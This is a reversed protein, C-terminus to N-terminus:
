TCHSGGMSHTHLAGAPQLTYMCCPHRTHGPRGCVWVERGWLGGREAVNVQRKRGYQLSLLSHHAKLSHPSTPSSPCTWVCAESQYHQLHCQSIYVSLGRNKLEGSIVMGMLKWVAFARRFQPSYVQPQSIHMTPTHVHLRSVHQWLSAVTQLSIVRPTHNQERMIDAKCWHVSLKALMVLWHAVHVLCFWSVARRKCVFSGNVNACRQNNNEM